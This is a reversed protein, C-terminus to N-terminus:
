KNNPVYWDVGLSGDGLTYERYFENRNKLAFSESYNFLTDSTAPNNELDHYLVNSLCRLILSDNRIKWTGSIRNGCTTEYFTSDSHLHLQANISGAKNSLQFMLRDFFGYTKSRYIGSFTQNSDNKNHCNFLLIVTLIVLSFIFFRKMFYGFILM